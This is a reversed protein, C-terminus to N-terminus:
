VTLMVVEETHRLKVADAPEGVKVIVFVRLIAPLKLRVPLVVVQVALM